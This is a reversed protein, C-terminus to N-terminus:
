LYVQFISVIKVAVPSYKDVFVFFHYLVVVRTQTVVPPWQHSVKHTAFGAPLKPIVRHFPTKLLHVSGKVKPIILNQLDITEGVFRQSTAFDLSHPVLSAIWKLHFVLKPQKMWRKFSDLYLLSVLNSNPNKSYKNDKSTTTSFSSFTNQPSM